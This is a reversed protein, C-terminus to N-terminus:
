YSLDTLDLHCVRFNFCVLIYSDIGYEDWLTKADLENILEKTFAQTCKEGPGDLDSLSATCRNIKGTLIWWYRYFCYNSVKPICGQVVGSLYVQEPYDAIFAALDHIVQCYHSDPCCCVVPVTMGYQLPMLIQTLSVHYMQHKFKQFAASNDYKQDGLFCTNHHIDHIQTFYQFPCIFVKQFQLSDLWSWLMAIHMIFQVISTGLPCTCHITSLMALLSRFLLKTQVLFLLVTSHMMQPKTIKFYWIRSWKLTGDEIYLSSYQLCIFHRWSFNGSMLENWQWQGSKDMEVFAAYDFEGNFDHNDLIITAVVDPDCYWAQSVQLQWSPPDHGLQGALSVIFSKWSADGYKIANITAYMHEHSSFPSIDDEDKLTVWIDMLEDIDGASM